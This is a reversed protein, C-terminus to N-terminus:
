TNLCELFTKFDEYLLLDNHYIRNVKDFIYRVTKEKYLYKDYMTHKYKKLLQKIDTNYKIVCDIFMNYKVVCYLNIIVNLIIFRTDYKMLYEVFSKFNNYFLDIDVTHTLSDKNYNYRYVFDDKYKIVNTYGLNCLVEAVVLHDEIYRMNSDYLINHKNLYTRRLIKAPLTYNHVLSAALSGDQCEGFLKFSYCVINENLLMENCMQEIATFNIYEDDADCFLVFESNSSNFGKLRSGSPGLNFPNNILTIELVNKYCEVISTYDDNPNDNVIVVNIKDRLSQRKISELTKSITNTANYAPIIIDLM